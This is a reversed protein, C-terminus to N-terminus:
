LVRWLCHWITRVKPTRPRNRVCFCHRAFVDWGGSRWVLRSGKAVCEPFMDCELSNPKGFHFTFPSCSTLHNPWRQPKLFQSTFLTLCGALEFRKPKRVLFTFANVFYRQIEIWGPHWLHFHTTKQQSDLDFSIKKQPDVHKKRSINKNQTKLQKINNTEFFACGKLNSVFGFVPFSIANLWM